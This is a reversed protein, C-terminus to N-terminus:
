PGRLSKFVIFWRLIQSCVENIDTGSLISIILTSFPMLSLLSWTIFLQILAYTILDSHDSLVSILGSDSMHGCNTFRFTFFTKTCAVAYWLTFHISEIVYPGECLTYKWKGLLLLLVSAIPFQKVAPGQGRRFGVSHGWTILNAKFAGPHLGHQDVLWCWNKAM